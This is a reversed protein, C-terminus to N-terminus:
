TSPMDSATDDRQEAYPHVTSYASSAPVGFREFWETFPLHTIGMVEGLETREIGDYTEDYLFEFAFDEFHMDRFGPFDVPLDQEEAFAAAEQLL